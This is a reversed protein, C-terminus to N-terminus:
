GVLFSPGTLLGKMTTGECAINPGYHVQDAPDAPSFIYSTPPAGQMRRFFSAEARLSDVLPIPGGSFQLELRPRERVVLTCMVNAGVAANRSAVSRIARALLRAIPEPHKIRILCQRIARVLHIREATTLSQGAAHLKFDVASDFFEIQATFERDATARWAETLDQANSIVALFPHLGDLTPATGLAEHHRIGVFGCGVFSTRRVTLRQDATLTRLPLQRIARSAESRLSEMLVDVPTGAKALSRMLLEDTKETSSSQALGTYAFSAYNCLLTAKNALEEVVSGTIDTLRRDSAQVAFRQTVCTLLLTM